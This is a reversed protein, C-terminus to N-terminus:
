LIKCFLDSFLFINKEVFYYLYMKKKLLCTGTHKELHLICFWFKRVSQIIGLKKSIIIGLIFGLRYNSSNFFGEGFDSKRIPVWWGIGEELENWSYINSLFVFLIDLHLVINNARELDYAESDHAERMEMIILESTANILDKAGCEHM